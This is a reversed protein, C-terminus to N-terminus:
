CITDIFMLVSWVFDSSCICIVYLFEPDHRLKKNCFYCLIVFGTAILSLVNVILIWITIYLGNDNM